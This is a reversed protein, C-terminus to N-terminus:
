VIMKILEDYQERTLSIITGRVKIGNSFKDKLIDNQKVEEISIPFKIDKTKVVDIVQIGDKNSHKEETIKGLAVLERQKGSNYGIVLDGM